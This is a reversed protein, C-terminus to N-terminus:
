FLTIKVFNLKPDMGVVDLEHLVYTDPAVDGAMRKKTFKKDSSLKTQFTSLIGRKVNLVPAVENGNALVRQIRGTSTLLFFLPFERLSSDLLSSQEHDRKFHNETGPFLRFLEASVVKLECYFHNKGEDEDEGRTLNDAETNGHSM